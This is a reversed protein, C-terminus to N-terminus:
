LYCPLSTCTTCLPMQAPACLSHLEHSEDSSCVIGIWGTMCHERGFWLYCPLSTCTCLDHPVTKFLFVSLTSEASWTGRHGYLLWPFCHCVNVLWANVFDAILCLETIHFIFAYPLSVMFRSAGMFWYTSRSQFQVKHVKFSCGICQFWPINTM